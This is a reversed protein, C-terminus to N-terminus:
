TGNANIEQPKAMYTMRMLKVGRSEILQKIKLM